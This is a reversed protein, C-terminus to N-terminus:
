SLEYVRIQAVYSLELNGVGREDLVRELNVRIETRESKPLSAVSSWSAYLALLGDRDTKHIFPVETSVVEEFGSEPSLTPVAFGTSRL